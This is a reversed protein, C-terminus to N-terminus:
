QNYLNEVTYSSMLHSKIKLMKFIVFHRKGKLVINGHLNITFIKLQKNIWTFLSTIVDKIYLLWSDARSAVRKLTEAVNLKRWDWIKVFPAWKQRLCKCLRSGWARTKALKVQRNFTFNVWQNAPLENLSPSPPMNKLCNIYYMTLSISWFMTDIIQM